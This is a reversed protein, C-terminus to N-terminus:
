AFFTHGGITEVITRNKGAWCSDAIYNACFFLIDDRYRYGEMSLKAAIVAKETPEDYVSGTSAPTFQVGNEMDFIVDYVNDPYDESEVRNYVVAAVALQGRLEEGRAEASIIRSLWYLEDADYFDDGNEIYSTAKGVTVSFDDGNWLVDAGFAKAMPRVAVMMRGNVIYNETGCMLYRGNAVIYKDGARATVTLGDLTASATKTEDDWSITAEGATMEGMFSRFWLCTTDNTLETDTAPYEDGYLEVRPSVAFVGVSLMLLVFAVAALKCSLIIKGKM